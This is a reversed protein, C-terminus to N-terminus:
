GSTKSECPEIAISKSPSGELRGETKLTQFFWAEDAGDLLEVGKEMHTMGWKKKKKKKLGQSKEGNMRRGDGGGLSRGKKIIRVRPARKGGIM